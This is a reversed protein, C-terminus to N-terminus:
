RQHSQRESWRTMLLGPWRDLPQGSVTEWAVRTRNGWKFYFAVLRQGAMWGRAAMWRWAAMLSLILKDGAIQVGSFLLLLAFAMWKFRPQDVRKAQTSAPDSSYPLVELPYQILGWNESNPHIEEPRNDLDRVPNVKRNRSASWAVRAPGHDLHYFDHDVIEGLNVFAHKLTLRLIIDFEMFDMYIFREDYGGCENWLNRHFLLIGIYSQYYLHPPPPDMLPLFRGCWRLFRDVAWFSPCRNAFRLPIRRRNSLLVASDLPVLLRPREYLWFFTELFHKGVLIDQDIRGIYEGKARRAAANLALVEPFPSDKQEVRAIEPPILIFSVIRAAEPTLALIDRLPVESGWDAVIIEVQKEKGLKSVNQAVYNLATQLRWTSNGQYQDNRACLILSLVPKQPSQTSSNKQDQNNM